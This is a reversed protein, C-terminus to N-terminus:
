SVLERTRRLTGVEVITALVAFIAMWIAKGLWPPPGSSGPPREQM